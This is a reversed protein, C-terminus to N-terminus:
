RSGRHRASDGDIAVFHSEFSFLEDDVWSPRETTRLPDGILVAIVSRWAFALSLRPQSRSTAGTDPANGCLEHIIVIIWELRNAHLDKPSLRVRNDVRRAAPPAETISPM